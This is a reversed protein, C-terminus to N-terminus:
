RNRTRIPRCIAASQPRSQTGARRRAAVNRTGTRISYRHGRHMPEGRRRLAMLRSNGRRDSAAARRKLHTACVAGLRTPACKTRECPPIPKLGMVRPRTRASLRRAVRARGSRGRRLPPAGEQHTLPLKDGAQFAAPYLYRERYNGRHV